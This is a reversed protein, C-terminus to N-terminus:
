EYLIDISTNIFYFPKQERNILPNVYVREGLEPHLPRPLPFFLLFIFIHFELHVEQRPLSLPRNGWILLQGSDWASLYCAYKPFLM